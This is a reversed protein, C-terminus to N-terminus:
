ETKGWVIRERCRLGFYGKLIFILDRKIGGLAKNDYKYYFGSDEAKNVFGWKAEMERVVDM